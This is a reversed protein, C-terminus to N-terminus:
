LAKESYPLLPARYLQDFASRHTSLATVMRSSFTTSSLEVICAILSIIEITAITATEVVM